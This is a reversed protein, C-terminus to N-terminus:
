RTGTRETASVPLTHYQVAIRWCLLPSLQHFCSGAQQGHGFRAITSFVAAPTARCTATSHDTTSLRRRTKRVDISIFLNTRDTRNHKMRQNLKSTNRYHVNQQSDYSMQTFHNNNINKYERM